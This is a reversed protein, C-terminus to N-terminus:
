PVAKVPPLPYPYLDPFPISQVQGNLNAIYVVCRPGFEAIFQRCVGCPPWAPESDTVVMVESIEILGHQSVAQLIAAREACITAGFSANEVNCGTFVEGGTLRIAAGVRCGSYPSYANERVDRAMRYLDRVTTSCQDIPM